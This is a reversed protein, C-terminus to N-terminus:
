EHVLSKIIGSTEYYEKFCASISCAFAFPASFTFSEIGALVATASGFSCHLAPSLVRRPWLWLNGAVTGVGVVRLLPM